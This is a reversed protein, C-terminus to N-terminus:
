FFSSMSVTNSSIILDLTLLYEQDIGKSRAQMLEIKKFGLRQNTRNHTENFCENISFIRTCPYTPDNKMVDDISRKEFVDNRV